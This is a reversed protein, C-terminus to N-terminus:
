SNHAHHLHMYLFPHLFTKGNFVCASPLIPAHPTSSSLTSNQNKKEGFVDNYWGKQLVFTSDNYAFMWAYTQQQKNKIPTKM